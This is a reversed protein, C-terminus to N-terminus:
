QAAPTIEATTEVGPLLLTTTGFKGAREYVVELPGKAGQLRAIFEREDAFDGGGAQYIRDQVRLGAKDAPSGPVVRTLIVAGPEADDTRWAIGVRVPKGALTISVTQPQAAGERAIGVPLPSEAVLVLSRLQDGSEVPLENWTLLRDGARLGARAAAGGPTVAAVRVGPGSKDNDDWRLGLRGPLPAAPREVVKQDQENESNSASRFRPLQEADALAIVTRVMLQTAQRLGAVNVKEADDSPRHYDDHLGTHMMLVPIRREYFPWHDSNDKLEWTFDIWLDFGENQGSILRRLGAGTRTGAVELRNRRMRGLMDTNIALRIKDLPATPASIWHKSGLLGKEEADWLVFLISRRPKLGSNVIGEAIEVLAAAGSANDDAGNHIYGTPGYSNQSTGYGVHDYHAGVLIYEGKLQPDSGEIWGLINRYGAGFVQYYGGRDGAGRLGLRQFEKGLYISSARGGRSGAERGEFTDDALADVHKRLDGETVSSLAAQLSSAEEAASAASSTLLAVVVASWLTPRPSM